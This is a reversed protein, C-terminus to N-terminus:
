FGFSFINSFKENELLGFVLQFPFPQLNKNFLKEKEQVNM